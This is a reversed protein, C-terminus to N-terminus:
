SPGLGRGTTSSGCPTHAVKRQHDHLGLAEEWPLLGVPNLQSQQAITNWTTEVKDGRRRWTAVDDGRRRWTTAVDDGRQRWTTEVADLLISTEVSWDGTELDGNAM